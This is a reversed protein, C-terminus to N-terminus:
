SPCETFSMIAWASLQRRLRAVIKDQEDNKNHNDHEMDDSGPEASWAQPETSEITRAKLNLRPVLVAWSGPNAAGLTTPTAIHSGGGALSWRHRGAFSCFQRAMMPDPM